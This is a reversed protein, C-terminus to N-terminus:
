THEILQKLKIGNTIHTPNNWYTHRLNLDWMLVAKHDTLLKGIEGIDDSKIYLATIQYNLRVNEREIDPNAEIPIAGM